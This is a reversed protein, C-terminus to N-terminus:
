TLPIDLIKNTIFWDAMTRNITVIWKSLGMLLLLLLLLVSKYFHLTEVEQSTHSYYVNIVSQLSTQSRNM